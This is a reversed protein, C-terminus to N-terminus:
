GGPTTGICFIRSQLDPLLQNFNFEEQQTRDQYFKVLDVVLQILFTGDDDPNPLKERNIAMASALKDLIFIFVKLDINEFQSFKVIEWGEESAIYM